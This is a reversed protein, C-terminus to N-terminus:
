DAFSRVLSVFLLRLYRRENRLYAILERVLLLIMCSFGTEDGRLHCLPAALDGFGRCVQGCSMKKLFFFSGVTFVSTLSQELASRFVDIDAVHEGLLRTHRKERSIRRHLSPKRSCQLVEIKNYHISKAGAIVFGLGLNGGDIYDRAM